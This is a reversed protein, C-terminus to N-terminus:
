AAPAPPPLAGLLSLADDLSAYRFEYADCADIMRSLTRFGRIGLSEYNFSCNALRFFARAKPLRTLEAAAGKAFTPFVLWAPTAPESARRVSEAPPRVHAVTGKNTNPVPASMYAEPAWRRMVEISANKLSIPRPWPELNGDGPKILAFEDSLLRWGRHALATCLTSKGAGPVGPLVLARGGRELVAAHIMVYQNARTAACWNISWELMPVAMSIPLPEFPREEDLVVTAQQRWWRRLGLPGGPRRVAVHFDALGGGEDLPFDGYLSRIEEALTPIATEIRVVFPGTDLDLGPRTLREALARHGLEGVTTV